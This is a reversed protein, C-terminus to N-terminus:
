RELPPQAGAGSDARPRLAAALPPRPTEPPANVATGPRAGLAGYLALYGAAM